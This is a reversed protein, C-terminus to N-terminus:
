ALYWRIGDTDLAEEVFDFIISGDRYSIVFAEFFKRAPTLSGESLIPHAKNLQHGLSFPMLSATVM